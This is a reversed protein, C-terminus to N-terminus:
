MGRGGVVYPITRLLIRVDLWLSWGAVYLYDIKVMEALPVRGTGAIQWLGTMGPTLQLRRRDWGTIQADEDVVLPRPGVLSMEGRVVNLLQPLEDLSTARLLRGVRTVRPDHRLKFLEGELDHQARLERRREDAGPVMTRFKLILFRRGDRGVRLQRFLVSDRSECVIAVAVLAMLPAAALLALSAVVVDFARKVVQSSRSLGFRRVGLVTLGELDDFVVASGVVDLVRPLLTVRLGLAKAARVVDLMEEPPLAQPDIVVRHARTEAILEHLGVLDGAPAAPDREDRLALRGCLRAHVARSALKGRLRDYDAADGIFLCREPPLLAAALRRATLRALLTGAFLVVGFALLPARGAGALWLGLTALSVVQLLRPAEDLTSKRLVLTDREYLGHLTSLLLIPPAAALWAPKGAALAAAAVALWDAVVLLARGRRDRAEVAGGSVPLAPPQPVAIGDMAAKAAIEGGANM